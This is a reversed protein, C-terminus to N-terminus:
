KGPRAGRRVIPAHRRAFQRRADAIVLAAGGVPDAHCEVVARADLAADGGKLFGPSLQGLQLRALGATDGGRAVPDADALPEVRPQGRDRGREIAIALPAILLLDVAPELGGDAVQPQGGKARGVELLDDRLSPVAAQRGRRDLQGPHDGVGGEAAGDREAVQQAIRRRAIKAATATVGMRRAIQQDTLGQSVLADLTSLRKRTWVVPKGFTSRREDVLQAPPLRRFAIM